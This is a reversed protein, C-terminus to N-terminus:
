LQLHRHQGGLVNEDVVFGADKEVFVGDFVQFPLEFHILIHSFHQHPSQLLLRRQLQPRRKRHVDFIFSNAAYDEISSLDSLWNNVILLPNGLSTNQLLFSVLCLPEIIRL